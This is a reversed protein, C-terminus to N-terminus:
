EPKERERSRRDKMTAGCRECVFVPDTYNGKPDAMPGKM